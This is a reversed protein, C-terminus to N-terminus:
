HTNKYLFIEPAIMMIKHTPYALVHPSPGWGLILVLNFDQM